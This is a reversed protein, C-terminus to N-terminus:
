ALSETALRLVLLNRWIMSTRLFGPSSVYGAIIERGCRLNYLMLKVREWDCELGSCVGGPPGIRDKLVLGAWIVLQLAAGGVWHRHM